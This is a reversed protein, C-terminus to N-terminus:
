PESFGRILPNRNKEMFDMVEQCRVVWREDQILSFVLVSVTESESMLSGVESMLVIGQNRDIEGIPLTFGM